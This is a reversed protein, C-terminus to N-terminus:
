EVRTQVAASKQGATADTVTITTTFTGRASYAHRFGVRGTRAGSTGFSDTSGDGFEAVLGLLSGGQVVATFVVTDGPAATTRSTEISIQLPLPELPEPACAALGILAFCVIVRCMAHSRM